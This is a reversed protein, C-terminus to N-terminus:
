DIEMMEKIEEPIEMKSIIKAGHCSPCCKPCYMKEPHKYLLPSWHCCDLCIPDGCSLCQHVKKCKGDGPEHRDRFKMMMEIEFLTYETGHITYRDTYHYMRNNVNQIMQRTMSWIFYELPDDFTFVYIDPSEKAKKRKKEFSEIKRNWAEPCREIYEPLMERIEKEIRKEEKKTLKM